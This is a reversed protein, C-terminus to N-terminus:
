LIEASFDASLGIPVGNYVVLQKIKSNKLNEKDEGKPMKIIIHRPTPRKPRMKGPISQEEQVQMEVEKALSPSNETMIEEFLNEVGQDREKEKPM